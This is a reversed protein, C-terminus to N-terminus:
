QANAAIQTFHDNEYYFFRGSLTTFWIRKKSDLTMKLVVNEPIGDKVTYTTLKNGDYKCVGADTAIWFFGSSDQLIQHAESSPLGKLELKEFNLEQAAGKLIFATFIFLYLKKLTRNNM